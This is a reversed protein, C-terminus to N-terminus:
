INEELVFTCTVRELNNTHMLTRLTCEEKLQCSICDDLTIQKNNSLELKASLVSLWGRVGHYYAHRIEDPVGNENDKQMFEDVKKIQEMYWEDDM